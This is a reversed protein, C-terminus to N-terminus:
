DSILCKSKTSKANKYHMPMTPMTPMTSKHQIEHRKPPSPTSPLSPLSPLYIKPLRERELVELLEAQTGVLSLLGNYEIHPLFVVEEDWMDELEYPPQQDSTPTCLEVLCEESEQIV